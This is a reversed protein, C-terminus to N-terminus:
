TGGKQAALQQTAMVQRAKEGQVYACRTCNGDADLIHNWHYPWGCASSGRCFVDGWVLGEPLAFGSM